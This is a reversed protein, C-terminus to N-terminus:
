AIRDIAVCSGQDADLTVLIGQLVGSGQACVMRYLVQTRVRDLCIQKDMGIISDTVGTMGLDTIYGTGKPLIREDATQIHTHTGAVLSARGDLYYALAEKERASEAHFDVLTFAPMPPVDSLLTDSLPADFLLAQQAIADFSRFPCDIPQMLERGQLNVVLWSVGAKEIRVWGRGPTGAPYNAPRLLRTESDLLPWFERKEWIHNGSSVVDAGADLIRRLTTETMGFGDAANEGNVVVFSATHQKILGPLQQELAALGPEGVIDGVMITKLSTM